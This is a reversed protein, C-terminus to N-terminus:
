KVVTFLECNSVVMVCATLTFTSFIDNMARITECDTVAEPLM